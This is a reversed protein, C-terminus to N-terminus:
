EGRPEWCPVSSLCLPRGEAERRPLRERDSRYYLRPRTAWSSTVWPAPSPTRYSTTLGSQGSPAGPAPVTTACETTGMLTFALQNPYHVTHWPSSPNRSARAEGTAIASSAWLWQTAGSNTTSPDDEAISLWMTTGAAISPGAFSDVTFRYIMRGDQPQSANLMQGTSVVNASVTGRVSEAGPLGADDRLFALNFITNTRNMDVGYLGHWEIGTIAADASLAFQDAGEQGGINSFFPAVSTALPQQYLVSPAAYASHFLMAVLVGGLVTRGYGQQWLRRM